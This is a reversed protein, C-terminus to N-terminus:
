KLCMSGQLLSSFHQISLILTTKRYVGGPTGVTGNNGGCTLWDRVETGGTLGAVVNGPSYTVNLVNRFCLLFCLTKKEVRRKPSCSIAKYLKPMEYWFMKICDRCHKSSKRIYVWRVCPELASSQTLLFASLWKGKLGGQM